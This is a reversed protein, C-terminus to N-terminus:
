IQKKELDVNQLVTQGLEFRVQYRELLLTWRWFRVVIRWVVEGALDDDVNERFGSEVRRIGSSDAEQHHNNYEVKLHISSFNM